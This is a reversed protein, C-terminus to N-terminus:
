FSTAEALLTITDEPKLAAVNLRRFVRRYRDVSEFDDILLEGGTTEVYAIDPHGEGFSLVTFSGTQAPHAGQDFRLVQITIHPRQALEHLCEIQTRMVDDGGVARRLAAEDIVAWIPVPDDGYLLRKREARVKVRVEVEDVDLENPGAAILARAYDATQFLGPVVALEYTLIGAADAELGLYASYKSRRRSLTRNYPQWWDKEGGTKALEILEKRTAEDAVGYRDLLDRVDRWKPDTWDAREIWHIKDTSCGL